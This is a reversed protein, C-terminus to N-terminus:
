FIYNLKSPLLLKNKFKKLSSNTFYDSKYYVPIPNDLEEQSEADNDYYHYRRLYAMIKINVGFYLLKFKFYIM